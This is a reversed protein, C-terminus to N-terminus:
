SLRQREHLFADIRTRLEDRVSRFAVLRAAEDSVAAPDPLSWHLQNRVGPLVPCAERANDCVTILYDFAGNAVSDLTKSYQASIDIGLEALVAIAEPRVFTAVTGASVVDTGPPAAHRMLGEAMQSRASNATCLILIRM